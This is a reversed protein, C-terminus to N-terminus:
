YMDKPDLSEKKRPKAGRKFNKQREKFAQNKKIANARADARNRAKVDAISVGDRNRKVASIQAKVKGPNDTTKLEKQKQRITQNQKSNPNFTNKLNKTNRLNEVGQRVTSKVNSVVKGGASSVKKIGSKCKILNNWTQDKNNGLSTLLGIGTVVVRKM